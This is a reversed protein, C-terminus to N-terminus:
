RKKRKKEQTVKQLRVKSYKTKRFLTGVPVKCNSVFYWSISLKLNWNSVSIAIANKIIIMAMGDMNNKACERDDGRIGGEDNKRVAIV